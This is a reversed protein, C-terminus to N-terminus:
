AHAPAAASRTRSGRSPPKRGVAYRMEIVGGPYRKSGLLELSIDRHRPAILPIGEGILVPMMHLLFEDIEGADLFSAILEAGGMMWIIKGPAARLRRAFKKVPENVFHMAAPAKKPPKRSFVYYTLRPNWVGEPKGIKRYYNMAWDYTKRGMLITDVGAEFKALGFDSTSPIRHLWEVDGDPRAIYGDASIAACIIIRRRSASNAVTTRGKIAM